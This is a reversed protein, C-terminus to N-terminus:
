SCIPQILTVRWVTCVQINCIEMAIAAVRFSVNSSEMHNQPVICAAHTILSLM